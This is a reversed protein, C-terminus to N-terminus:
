YIQRASKATSNLSGYQYPCCLVLYLLRCELLSSKSSVEWTDPQVEQTPSPSSTTVLLSNSINVPLVM